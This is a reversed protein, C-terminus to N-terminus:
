VVSVPYANGTVPLVVVCVLAGRGPALEYFLMCACIKRVHRMIGKIGGRKRAVDFVEGPDCLNGDTNGTREQDVSFMRLALEVNRQRGRFARKDGAIVAPHPQQRFGASYLGRHHVIGHLPSRYKHEVVRQLSPLEAVPDLFIKVRNSLGRFGRRVDAPQAVDLLKRNPRQAIKTEVVGCPIGGSLVHGALRRIGGAFPDLVSMRKMGCVEQRSIDICVFFMGLQVHQQSSALPHDGLRNQAAIHQLLEHM